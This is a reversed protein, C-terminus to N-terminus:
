IDTTLDIGYAARVFRHIDSGDSIPPSISTMWPKFPAM